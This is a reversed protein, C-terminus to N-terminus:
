WTESWLSQRGHRRLLAFASFGGVDHLAHAVVPVLLSGTVVYATGLLVGELCAWLVFPRLRRDPLYHALGFLLAAVLVAAWAPATTRQLLGALVVGRFVLEEAGALVGGALVASGAQSRFHDVLGEFTVQYADGGIADLLLHVLGDSLVLLGLAAVAALLTTGDPELSWALGLLRRFVVAVLAMAAALGLASGARRKVTFLM